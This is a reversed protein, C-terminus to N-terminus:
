KLCNVSLSGFLGIKNNYWDTMVQHLFKQRETHNLFMNQFHDVLLDELQDMYMNKAASGDPNKMIVIGVKSPLGSDDPQIISSKTFRNDLFKKVVLVKEPDITYPKEKGPSSPFAENVIQEFLTMDNLRKRTKDKSEILPDTSWDYLLNGSDDIVNYKNGIKVRATYDDEGNYIFPEADDFWMNEKIFRCEEPDIFTWKGSSSRARVWADGDDVDMYGFLSLFAVKKEGIESFYNIAGESLGISGPVISDNQSNKYESNDPCFQYKAGNEKNVLIYLVYNDGAYENWKAPDSSSTCWRTDGGLVRADKYTKPIYIEWKSDSYILCRKKTEDIKSETKGRKAIDGLEQMKASLIEPTWEKLNGIGLQDKNSISAYDNLLEIVASLNESTINGKNLQDLMWLGCKGIFAGKVTNKSDPAIKEVYRFLPDPINKFIARAKESSMSESLLKRKNTNFELIYKKQKM